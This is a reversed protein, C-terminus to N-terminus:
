SWQDSYKKNHPIERENLKIERDPDYRYLLVRSTILLIEWWRYNEGVSQVHTYM